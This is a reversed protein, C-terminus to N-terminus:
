CRPARACSGASNGPPAQRRRRAHGGRDPARRGPDRERVHDRVRRDPRDRPLAHRRVAGALLRRHRRRARARRVERRVAGDRRAGERRALDEVTTASRSTTSSGPRQRPRRDARDGRATLAKPHTFDFRLRDPAVLSGQQTPTTASCRGCRGTCCTRRRTTRWSTSAATATSRRPRRRRFRRGSRRRRGQRRPDRHPGDEAHRRGPLPVGAGEITGADGIQGGSEAYFPTRDLVLRTGDILKLPRVSPRRATRRARRGRLLRGRDAAPRPAADPDVLWKGGGAGRSAKRHQGEAAKWGEEDVGLGRERAMLEVLDRPFGYTAYLHYATDGPITKGGSARCPEAVSKSSRRRGQDLTRRLGEGRGRDRDPRPGAAGADRPVRRGLVAVVAPVVRFLFPEEM